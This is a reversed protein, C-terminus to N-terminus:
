EVAMKFGKGHINLIEIRPDLALYKRLKAIYVDMSRSNKYSSEGWIYELASDREILENKNKSLLSLLENEKSTLKREGNKHSLTSHMYSFTYQGITYDKEATVKLNGSRRLIAELKAMLVEMTFPKTIYDDAGVHFGKLYDDKLSKSTLFVLPIQKNIKRVDEAFQYGNRGPMVVDALILHFDKELFKKYAEEANMAWETTVGKTNLYSVLLKGLSADDEVLLINVSDLM